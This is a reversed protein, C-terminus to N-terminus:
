VCRVEWDSPQMSSWAMMSPLTSYRGLQRSGVLKSTSQVFFSCSHGCSRALACVLGTASKAAKWLGADRLGLRLTCGLYDCRTVWAPFGDLISACHIIYMASTWSPHVYGTVLDLNHMWSRLVPWITCGLYNIRNLLLLPGLYDLTCIGVIKSGIVLLM